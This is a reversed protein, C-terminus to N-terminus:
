GRIGEADAADPEATLYARYDDIAPYPHGLQEHCLGRDRQLTPDISHMIAADFAELAGACDGNRMRSRAVLAYGTTGLQQKQLILPQQKKTPPPVNSPQAGARGAMLTLTFTLAAALGAAHIKRM